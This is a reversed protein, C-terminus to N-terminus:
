TSGHARPPGWLPRSPPLARAAAAPAGRPGGAAWAAPLDRRAVKAARGPETFLALEDESLGVVVEGGLVAVWAPVAGSARIAGGMREICEVNRPHPLGQGIVSTELCVVPGGAEGAREVEAGLRIRASVGDGGAV